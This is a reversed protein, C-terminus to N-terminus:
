IFAHCQIYEVKIFTTNADELTTALKEVAEMGRFSDLLQTDGQFSDLLQTDGQFSDLLQGSSACLRSVKCMSM